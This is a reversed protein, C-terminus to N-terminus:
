IRTALFKTIDWINLFLLIYCFITLYMKLMINKKIKEDVLIGYSQHPNVARDVNPRNHLCGDQRGSGKKGSSDIMRLLLYSERLLIVQSLYCYKSSILKTSKHKYIM